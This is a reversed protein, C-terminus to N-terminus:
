FQIHHYYNIFYFLIINLDSASACETLDKTSISTLHVDKAQVREQVYFMKIDMHKNRSSIVRNAAMKIVARNDEHIPTSKRETRYTSSLLHRLWMVEKAVETAATFEAQASSLSALMYSAEGHCLPEATISQMDMDAAGLRLM